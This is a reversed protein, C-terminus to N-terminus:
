GLAKRAQEPHRGRRHTDRTSAPTWRSGCQAKKRLRSSAVVGMVYVAVLVVSAPHVGFVAVEPAAYAALPVTLLLLLVGCQFVNALEAAAHELNAQRHLM